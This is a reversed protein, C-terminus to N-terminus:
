VKVLKEKEGFLVVFAGKGYGAEPKEIYNFNKIDRDFLVQFAGTFRIGIRNFIEIVEESSFFRANKYFVSNSQRELYLRGLESKKDVIAVILRSGKKLVRKAEILSKMPDNVFCITVALLVFDFEEDQFPLSEAIGKYVNIGKDRAIQAMKDSPEVGFAIGLPKAFRGSGVGVELGKGGSPVAMKLAEVESLYVFRNEEFWSEYESSYKEFVEVKKLFDLYFLKSSNLSEFNSIIFDVNLNALRKKYEDSIKSGILIYKNLNIDSLSEKSIKKLFKDNDYISYLPAEEFNGKFIDDNYGTAILAFKM